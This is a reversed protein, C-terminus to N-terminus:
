AAHLRAEAERKRLYLVLSKGLVPDLRREILRLLRPRHVIDWVLLRHYQRPLWARDSPRICRLWWYPSHLAHVHDHGTVALGHSELRRLLEHGRYIRVHGGPNSHYESSLAWCIREPGWRPVSVALTGGPRLVRAFEAMAAQDQPVHELVESAVVRDFTCAGFPLRLADAQVAAATGGTDVEGAALMAASVAMADVLGDRALDLVTVRAGLRLAQHSHRGGGAGVDLVRDGPGVGLRELDVTLV